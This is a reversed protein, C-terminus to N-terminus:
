SAFCRSSVLLILYECYSEVLSASLVNLIKEIPKLTRSLGQQNSMEMRNKGVNWASGLRLAWEMRAFGLVTKLAFKPKMM